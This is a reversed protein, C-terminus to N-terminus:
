RSTDDEMLQCKRNKRSMTKDYNLWFVISKIPMRWVYEYVTQINIVQKKESKVSPIYVNYHLNNVHYRYQSPIKHSDNTANNRRAGENPAEGWTVDRESRVKPYAAGVRFTPNPRERSYLLGGADQDKVAERPNEIIKLIYKSVYYNYINYVFSEFERQFEMFLETYRPFYYIFEYLRGTYVLEHYKYKFSPHNGRLEKLYKYVTNEVKTRYGTEKDTIMVGMTYNTVGCRNVTGSNFSNLFGVNERQDSEQNKLVMRNRKDITTTIDDYTYIISTLSMSDFGFSLPYKIVARSSLIDWEKFIAPPIYKVEWAGIKEYVAVLYIEPKIVNHVIHNDPHKMVFSYFYKKNLEVTDDEGFEEYNGVIEIFMEKFTRPFPHNPYSYNGSVSKKTSIEWKNNSYDWWLNVMTGEIIENIVFRETGLWLPDEKELDLNKYIEKFDDFPISKPPSFSLLKTEDENLVISRALNVSPYKYPHIRPSPPYKPNTEPTSGDVVVDKPQSSPVFDVSVVTYATRGNKPTIKKKYIPELEHIFELSTINETM